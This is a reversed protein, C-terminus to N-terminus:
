PGGRRKEREGSTLATLVPAELTVRESPRTGLELREIHDAPTAARPRRATKNADPAAPKQFVVRVVQGKYSAIVNNLGMIQTQYEKALVADKTLYKVRKGDLVEGDIVM